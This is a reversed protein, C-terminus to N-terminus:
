ALRWDPRSAQLASEYAGLPMRRSPEVFGHAEPDVPDARFALEPPLARAVIVFLPDRGVGGLARPRRLPNMRMPDDPTVSLGGTLPAVDGAADPAIDATRGEAPLRVGLARASRECLPLGDAAAKM